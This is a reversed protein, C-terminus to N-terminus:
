ESGLAADLTARIKAVAEAHEDSLLASHGRSNTRVDGVKTMALLSLNIERLADSVVQPPAKAMAAALADAMEKNM